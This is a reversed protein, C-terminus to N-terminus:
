QKTSVQGIPAEQFYVNCSGALASYFDVSGHVSWCRIYPPRWYSGRCLVKENPNIGAELAAMGTIPKYTSGPPYTGQFVRDFLPKIVPDNYYDKKGSYSGDVFDNPNIAPRSAAALVAGTNVDLVIGGGAEAKPNSKKIDEIVRDLSEELARQLDMDITLVSDYGPTPPITILEKIKRNRADVEVQRVGDKGKLGIVRNDEYRLLETFREIGTKGIWDQLDYNYKSNEELEKDNIKGVYGLIHGALENHPYYRLPYEEISIGPLEM